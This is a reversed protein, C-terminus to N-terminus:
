CWYIGWERNLTMKADFDAVSVYGNGTLKVGIDEVSLPYPPSIPTFRILFPYIVTPTIPTFTFLFPYTLTHINTYLYTSSLPPLYQHLARNDKCWYGVGVLENGIMKGSVDGEMVSENLAMKLHIDELSMKTFREKTILRQCKMKDTCRGMVHIPTSRDLCETLQIYGLSMWKLQARWENGLSPWTLQERQEVRLLMETLDEKRVDWIANMHTAKQTCRDM